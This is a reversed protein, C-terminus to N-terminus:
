NETNEIFIGVQAARLVINASKNLWGCKYINSIKDINEIDTTKITKIAEHESSNYIDNIQPEIKTFGYEKFIKETDNIIMKLGTVTMEDNIACDLAIYIVDLINAFKLLIDAKVKKEKTNYEGELSYKIRRVESSSEIHLREFKKHLDEITNRLNKNEEDLNKFAELIEDNGKDDEANQSEDNNNHKSHSDQFHEHSRQHDSHDEHDHDQCGHKCHKHTTKKNEDLNNKNEESM